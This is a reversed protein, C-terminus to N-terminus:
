CKCTLSITFVCEVRPNRGDTASYVIVYNGGRNFETNNKQGPQLIKLKEDGANDKFM